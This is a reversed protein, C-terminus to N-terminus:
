RAAVPVSVGVGEGKIWDLIVAVQRPPDDLYCISFLLLGGPGIKVDLRGERGFAPVFIDIYPLRALPHPKVDYDIGGEEAKATSRM